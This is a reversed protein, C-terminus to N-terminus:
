YVVICEDEDEEEREQIGQQQKRKSKHCVVLIGFIFHSKIVKSQVAACNTIAADQFVGDIETHCVQM